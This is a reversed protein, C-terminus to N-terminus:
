NLLVFIGDDILRVLYSYYSEESRVALTTLSRSREEVFESIVICSMRRGKRAIDFEDLDREGFLGFQEVFCQAYGTERKAM